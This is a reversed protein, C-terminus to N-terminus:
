ELFAGCGQRIPIYIYTHIYIVYVTYICLLTVTNNYILITLCYIYCGSCSFERVGNSCFWVQCSKVQGVYVATPKGATQEIVKGGPHAAVFSTLDFVEGRYTVWFPKGDRGDMLQVEEPTYVNGEGYRKGNNGNGNNNGTHNIVTDNRFLPDQSCSYYNRKTVCNKDHMYGSYGLISVIVATASTKSNVGLLTIRHFRSMTICDNESKCVTEVSSNQKGVDRNVDSAETWSKTSLQSSIVSFFKSWCSPSM